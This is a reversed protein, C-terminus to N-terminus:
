KGQSSNPSNPTTPKPVPTTSPLVLVPANPINSNPNPIITMAGNPSLIVIDKGDQQAFGTFRGTTLDFVPGIPQAMLTVNAGMLLMLLVYKM